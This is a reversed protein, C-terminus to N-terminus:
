IVKYRWDGAIINNDDDVIVNGSEDAISAYYHNSSIMAKLKDLDSTLAFAGTVDVEIDLQNSVTVYWQQVIQTLNDGTYAPMERGGDAPVAAVAYLFEEGNVTCVIGIENVNYTESVITQSGDYNVFVVGLTIGQGDDERSSITYTNKQSKLATMGSVDESESYIGSGTRIATFVLPYSTDIAKQIARRGADTVSSIPFEM